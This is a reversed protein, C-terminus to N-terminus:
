FQRIKPSRFHVLVKLCNKTELSTFNENNNIKSDCDSYNKSTALSDNNEFGSTEFNLAGDCTLECGDANSINKEENESTLNKETVLNENDKEEGHQFSFAIGSTSEKEAKSIKKTSIRRTQELNSGDDNSNITFDNGIFNTVAEHNKEEGTGFNSINLSNKKMLRCLFQELTSDEVNSYNIIMDDDFNEETALKENNKQEATEFHSVNSNNKETLRRCKRMLNEDSGFSRSSELTKSTQLDRRCINELSISSFSTESNNKVRARFNLPKDVLIEKCEVPALKPLTKTLSTRCTKVTSKESRSTEVYNFIGDDEIIRLDLPCLKARRGSIVPSMSKNTEEFNGILNKDERRVPSSTVNVDANFRSPSTLDNASGGFNFKRPTGNDWFTDKFSVIASKHGRKDGIEPLDLSETILYTENLKKANIPWSFNEVEIEEESKSVRPSSSIKEHKISKMKSIEITKTNKEDSIQKWTVFGRNKQVGCPQVTMGVVADNIAIDNIKPNGHSRANVINQRQSRTSNSFSHDVKRVSRSTSIPSTSSNKHHIGHITTPLIRPRHNVNITPPVPRSSQANSTTTGIEATPRYPLPSPFHTLTM